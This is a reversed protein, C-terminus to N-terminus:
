SLLVTTQPQIMLLLLRMVSPASLRWVSAYLTALNSRAVVHLEWDNEVVRTVDKFGAREMRPKFSEFTYMAKHAGWETYVGPFPVQGDKISGRNWNKDGSIKEWGDPGGAYDSFGGFLAIMVEETSHIGEVYSRCLFDLDPMKITIKGGPRLVRGWEKLVSDVETYSFHEVIHASYLEDVQDDLLWDLYRADAELEVNGVKVVDVHTFGPEGHPGSGLEIKVPVNSRM